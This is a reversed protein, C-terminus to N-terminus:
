WNPRFTLNFYIRQEGSGLGPVLVNMNGKLTNLKSNLRSNIKVSGSWEVNLTPNNGALETELGEIILPENLGPVELVLSTVTFGRYKSALDIRIDMATITEDEIGKATLYATKQPNIEVKQKTVNYYFKRVAPTGGFIFRVSVSNDRDYESGSYDYTVYYLGDHQNLQLQGAEESTLKPRQSTTIDKGNLTIAFVHEGLGNSVTRFSINQYLKRYQSRLNRAANQRVDDFFYEILPELDSIARDIQEVSTINDYAAELALYKDYMERDRKEFESSLRKLEIAPFPYKIAYLYTIEKTKSDRRKEWYTDEVKSMSVGKLFPVKAAQTEFSSTYTDMFSVVGTNISEQSITSSSSFNVNEAVAQIMQRRVDRLCEEKLAEINGGIASAIIYDKQGSNVWVPMKKASRETVKYNQASLTGSAIVLIAALATFIQKKM